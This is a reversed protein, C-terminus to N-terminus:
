DCVPRVSCGICRYDGYNRDPLGDYGESDFCFYVATYDIVPHSTWYLGCKGPNESYGHHNDRCGAAPLFISNGNPGTVRYGNHGGQSTWKWICKKVLEEFEEYTAIRWGNGWNATATDYKPNGSIDDIDKEITKCNDYSFWNKTSTEGWAFYGGYDSPGNAGVNIDAWKVSLGLDMAKGKQASATAFTITM